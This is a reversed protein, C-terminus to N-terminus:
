SGILVQLLKVWIYIYMYMYISLSTYVIDLYMCYGQWAHAHPNIVCPHITKARTHSSYLEM